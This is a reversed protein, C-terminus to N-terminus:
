DVPMHLTVFQEVSAPLDPLVTCGSVRPGNSTSAQESELCGPPIRSLVPNPGVVLPIPLQTWQSEGAPKISLMTNYWLTPLRQDLWILYGHPPASLEDASDSRIVELSAFINRREMVRAISLYQEKVLLFFQSRPPMIATYFINPWKQYSYGTYRVQLDFQEDTPVVLVAPGAIPAPLPMTDAVTQEIISRAWALGEDPNEFDRADGRTPLLFRYPLACATATLIALLLVVARLM